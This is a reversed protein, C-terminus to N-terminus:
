PLCLRAREIGHDFAVWLPTGTTALSTDPSLKEISKVNGGGLVVHKAGLADKIRDVVHTVHRRRRKKWDSSVAFVLGTETHRGNKYPLHALELPDLM